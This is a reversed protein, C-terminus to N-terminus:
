LWIGAGVILVDFHEAAVENTNTSSIADMDGVQLAIWSVAFCHAPPM